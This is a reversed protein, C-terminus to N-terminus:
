VAYRNKLASLMWLNADWQSLFPQKTFPAVPLYPWPGFETTIALEALGKNKQAFVVADWISFHRAITDEWEPALPNNVQPGQTYGIRAHIHRTHRAAEALAEAQNHLLSEAVCMWHSVDLTLEIFRHNILYDRTIHAAYSFRGRHTEHTILLSNQEAIRDAIKLLELNEELTFFDKGTHSNLLFPKAAAIRELNSVFKDRHDPFNHSDTEWHQAIFKLGHNNIEELLRETESRNEPIGIEVGDYGSAKVKQLFIKWPINESGWRPCFYTIHM